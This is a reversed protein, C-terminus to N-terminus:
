CDILNPNLILQYHQAFSIKEESLALVPRSITYITGSVSVEMKDITVALLLGGATGVARYGIFHPKLAEEYRPNEGCLEQLVDAELVSVPKGSIPDWLRNGTDYLGKVKKSKEKAYLTVECYHNEKKKWKGYITYFLILMEYFIAGQFLFTRLHLIAPSQYLAFFIGGGLFATGYLLVMGKILMRVNRIKCGVKVMLTSTVMHVPLLNVFDKRVPLCLVLCVGFAGIVGGAVCRIRRPPYNMLRQLVRLMLYNMAANTLFIVDLYVEAIVDMRGGYWENAM